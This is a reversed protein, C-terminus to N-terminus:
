QGRAVCPCEGVDRKETARAWANAFERDPFAPSWRNDPLRTDKMGRGENCFRCSGLHVRARSTPDDVYVYYSM